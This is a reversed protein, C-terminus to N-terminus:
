KYGTLKKSSILILRGSTRWGPGVGGPVSGGDINKREKKRGKQAVISKM